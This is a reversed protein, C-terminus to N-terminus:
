FNKEKQKQNRLGHCGFHTEERKVRSYALIYGQDGVFRNLISHLSSANLERTQTTVATLTNHYSLNQM